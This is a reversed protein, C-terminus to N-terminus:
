TGANGDAAPEPPLWRDLASALAQPSVPKVVHDNMGAALFRARDGLMANATFAIIPIQHNPVASQPQRILRTAELGDMVPMQVDMLVLDYPLTELARLAAAGNAVVDAHLGMKKLMGLALKQNVINDEALLIRAQRGAFRDRLEPTAQQTISPLRETPAAGAQQGLRVTFWFESGKGLSSEVGIQGGMLEALQKSIALGLGSGGYQRTISADVQSFKDFLLDLKAAPIGIGTDRVSFRLLLDPPLTTPTSIPSEAEADLRPATGGVASKRAASEGDAVRSVRIEVKGAPTFKVANAALNTLIQRLRGPDGRLRTPVGPAAACLLELGKERARVSLIVALDDLLSGLDFDLTEMELKGAEIKSFDLIDNILGLLAEGSHHVTEAYRRQEEDLQTDLLLGTMGIVGNLPTRIEHSMNALFDSKAANAQEARVALEQALATTEALRRNGERVVEEAQKRPTIDADSGRYGRLSGDPNLIPIGNTSVWVVRGDKSQVTNELNAFSGHRAFVAFAAQKFEERGAEPHLDYFHLRGTLEEPRYGWVAEAVPSAFTYLGQANVEWVVTRSQEALQELRLKNERLELIGTALAADTRRLLVFAFFLLLALLGGGIMGARALLNRFAMREASIDRQVLLSGVAAGSIDTLTTAGAWWYKEGVRFQRSRLGHSPADVIADAWSAIADPLRGQSAFVVVGHPLREWDGTLGRRRLDAEWEQQNLYKKNLVAAWQVGVHPHLTRMMGGIEKGLELYGVRLAGVFVPRIARLVLAGEKIELGSSTASSPEAADAAFREVLDGHRELQHLRLLCVRNPDLFTFHTILDQQLLTAFAPQSAALLRKSDGVRLAEQVEPDAVIPQAAVALDASEQELARLLVDSSEAIEVVMKTSLTRRYQHWLLAGAGLLLAFLLVALPLLLRWLIPTSSARPYHVAALALATGILLVLLLAVPAAARAAVDWKWASADLDVGLVAIVAGTHPDTLPILASIWRGWRDAYPGDTTPIADDFLRHFAAPAEGYVQGPLAHDKSNSPESDAYFFVAGATTRGMLYIWRWDPSAACAAQIQETLRQYEPKTLDSANGDLTQVQALSLAQAVGAAQRLHQVRLDRDAHRVLLWTTLGGAVLLAMVAGAFWGNGASRLNTVWEDQYKAPGM